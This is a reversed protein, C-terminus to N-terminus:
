APRGRDLGEMDTSADQTLFTRWQELQAVIMQTLRQATAHERWARCEALDRIMRRLDDDLAGLPDSTAPVALHSLIRPAM